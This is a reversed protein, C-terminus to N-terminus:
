DAVDDYLSEAVRVDGGGKARRGVSLERQCSSASRSVISVLHPLLRWLWKTIHTTSQCSPSRFMDVIRSGRQSVSFLWFSLIIGIMM